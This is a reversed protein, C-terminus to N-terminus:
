PEYPFLFVWAITELGQPRMGSYVVVCYITFPRPENLFLARQMVILRTRGEDMELLKCKLSPRTVWATIM